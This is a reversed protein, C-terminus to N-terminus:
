GTCTSVAQHMQIQRGVFADSIAPVNSPCLPRSRDALEGAALAFIPESHDGGEPLLVFKDSEAAAPLNSTLRKPMTRVATKAADFAERVPKGMSCALYFHKTFQIAAKDLILAHARVAVVHKVGARVFADAASQSHCACVFVLQLPSGDSCCTSALLEPPVAHAGGGGDEFAMFSEEGHGSYHLVTTGMTMATVLADTTAILMNVSMERESYRLVDLLAEREATLSLFPLARVKGDSGRSILPAAQLVTLHAYPQPAQPAQPPPQPHPKTHPPTYPPAPVSTMAMQPQPTAPASSVESTASPVDGYIMSAADTVLSCTSSQLSGGSNVHTLQALTTLSVSSPLVPAAPRFDEGASVAVLTDDADILALEDVEFGKTNFLRAVNTIGLKASCRALLINFGDTMEDDPKLVVKGGSSEGNRLVNIRVKSMHLAQTIIDRGLFAHLTM